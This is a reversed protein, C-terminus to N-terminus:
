IILLFNADSLIMHNVDFSLSIIVLILPCVSLQVFHWSLILFCVLSLSKWDNLDNLCGFWQNRWTMRENRFDNLRTECSELKCKTQNSKWWNCNHENVFSIVIQPLLICLPPLPGSKTMQSNGRSWHMWQNM